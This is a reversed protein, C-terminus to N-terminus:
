RQFTFWEANKLLWPWVLNIMFIDSDSLLIYMLQQQSNTPFKYNNLDYVTHQIKGLRM